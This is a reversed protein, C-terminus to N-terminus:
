YRQEIKVVPRVPFFSHEVQVYYHHITMLVTDGPKLRSILAAVSADQGPTDKLVDVMVTEGEGMKEDGYQGLKQYHENHLVRFHALTAAHDCRDPCLATMHRCPHFQTGEYRALVTNAALLDAQDPLPSACASLGALIAILIMKM